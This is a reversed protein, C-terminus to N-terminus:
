LPWQFLEPPILIEHVATNIVNDDHYKRTVILRTEILGFGTPMAMAEEQAERVEGVFRQWRTGITRLVYVEKACIPALLTNPPGSLIIEDLTM